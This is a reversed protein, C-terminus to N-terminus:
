PQTEESPTYSIRQVQDSLNDLEQQGQIQHAIIYRLSDETALERRDMEAKLLRVLAALEKERQQRTMELLSEALLSQSVTQRSEFENLQDTLQLATPVNGSVNLSGPNSAPPAPATTWVAIAIVLAAASAVSPFWRLILGSTDSAVSPPRWAPAPVDYWTAARREMLRIQQLAAQCEPCDTLERTIEQQAYESLTGDAYEFLLAQVEKCDM